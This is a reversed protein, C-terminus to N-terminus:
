RDKVSEMAVYSSSQQVHPLASIKDAMVIRYEDITSTRVKLLYDFNGAIMHCQEVETIKLVAENFAKLARSRTDELKVQVFTIHNKGLKAQDIRAGYGRIIGEKELKRVRNLCPTKSLGIQEALEAMSLRGQHQLADLIAKDYRDLRIM